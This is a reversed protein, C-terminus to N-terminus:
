LEMGGKTIGDKLAKTLKNKLNIENKLKLLPDKAKARFTQLLAKPNSKNKGLFYSKVDGVRARLTLTKAALNVAEMKGYVVYSIANFGDIKGDKNVIKSPDDNIGKTSILDKSKHNNKSAELHNDLSKEKPRDYSFTKDFTKECDLAFNKREFGITVEKDKIKHKDNHRAKSFPSLKMEKDKDRRSVVVHIHANIGEKKLGENIIQGSPTKHLKDELERQLKTNQTKKAEFIELLNKKNEKVLPDSDKWERKYEVKAVFVIDSGKLKEGNAKVRNFNDAYNDMCKRTYNQLALSFRKKEDNNLDELSHVEKQRKKSLVSQLIHSNEDSSPNISFTYFKADNKGLGSGINNDIIDMASGPSLMSKDYSFFHEKEKVAEINKNEKELYEILNKCSGKNDGGSLEHPKSLKIYM